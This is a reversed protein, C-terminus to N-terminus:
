AHIEFAGLLRKIESCSFLNSHDILERRLIEYYNSSESEASGSEAENLFREDKPIPVWDLGSMTFCNIVQFRIRLKM